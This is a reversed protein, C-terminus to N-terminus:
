AARTASAVLGPVLHRMPKDHRLAHAASRRELLELAEEAHTAHVDVLALVIMALMQALEDNVTPIVEHSRYNREELCMRKPRRLLAVKLLERQAQTQDHDTPMEIDVTEHFDSFDDLRHIPPCGSLIQDSDESAM